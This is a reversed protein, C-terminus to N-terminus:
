RRLHRGVSLLGIVLVLPLWVWVIENALISLARGEFFAGISIPSTALPRWPLFSRTNDFPIFFGVGLGADTCADLVGHSAGALFLVGFAVWWDRSGLQLGPSLVITATLSAFAAFPLSHSLGRHGLPHAYPIGLSFTIVDLDPLTALVIAAITFRDASLRRTSCIAIGAGLLGHTLATPVVCLM